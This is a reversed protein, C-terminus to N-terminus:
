PLPRDEPHNPGYFQLEIPISTNLLRTKRDINCIFGFLALMGDMMVTSLIGDYFWLWTGFLRTGNM